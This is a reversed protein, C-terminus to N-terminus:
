NQLKVDLVIEFYLNKSSYYLPVDPLVTKLLKARRVDVVLVILGHRLLKAFLTM